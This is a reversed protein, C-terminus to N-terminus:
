APALLARIPAFSRRHQPTLGHAALARAHEGTGYGKHRDFGFDPYVAALEVLLRDRYVKAVVSAAAISLCLTDGHVISEQAYPLGPLAFADILLYDPEIPLAGVARELAARGARGLGLRDVEFAPIEALGFGLAVHRIVPALRERAASTLQKSDRVGALARLLAPTPPPLVVAAAVLPGAWCGRGVEDVGAVARLGLRALRRERSASATRPRSVQSLRPLRLAM